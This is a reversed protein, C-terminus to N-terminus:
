VISIAQFIRMYSLYLFVFSVLICIYSLYSSLLYRGKWSEEVGGTYIPPATEIQTRSVPM